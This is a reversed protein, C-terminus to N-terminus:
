PLRAIAQSSIMTKMGTEENKAGYSLIESSRLGDCYIRTSISYVAIRTCLYLKQVNTQQKRKM